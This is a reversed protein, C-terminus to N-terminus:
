GHIQCHTEIQYNLIPNVMRFAIFPVLAIMLVAAVIVLGLVIKKTNPSTNPSM